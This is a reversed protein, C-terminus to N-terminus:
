TGVQWAFTELLLFVSLVFTLRFLFVHQWTLRFLRNYRTFLPLVAM